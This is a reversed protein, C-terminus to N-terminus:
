VYEEGSTGLDIDGSDALRRAEILIGKQAEEVDSLRTPGKAEMDERMLTGARKSMNSLIKDQLEPPAGKLAVVLMDNSVERLLAQIGRDDVDMLTEFVFMMEQIQDCLEENQDKIQDLVEESPGVGLANVISAAVKAGGIKRSTSNAAEVSKSVILAEIEALANQQVDNLKAIRMVTEARQDQPMQNIVDAAQDPELFSLIIAIIQPHEGDVIEAVEKSSMWKLAEIGQANSGTLMREILANAKTESFAKTLVKRVYSETEMGFSPQDEIDTIFHDLVSSAQEKSVGGLTTMASGLQQVENADMFKLIEAAETEGLSLLLLAARETGSMATDVDSM